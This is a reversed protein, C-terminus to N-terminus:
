DNDKTGAADAGHGASAAEVMRMYVKGLESACGIDREFGGSPSFLIDVLNELREGGEGFVSIIGFSDDLAPIPSYTENGERRARCDCCYPSIWGRSFAIDTFSGCEKCCRGSISDAIWEIDSLYNRGHLPISCSAYWRLTGFKEKIQEISYSLLVDSDPMMHDESGVSHSRDATALLIRRIDECMEIGFALRWGCEMDALLTRASGHAWSSGDSFDFMTRDGDAMPMLFPYRTVLLRVLEWPEEAWGKAHVLQGCYDKEASRVLGYDPVDADRLELALEAKQLSM